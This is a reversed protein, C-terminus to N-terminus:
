ICDIAQKMQMLPQKSRYIRDTMTKHAHGLISFRVHDPVEHLDRLRDSLGYRYDHATHKMGSKKFATSIANSASSNNVWHYTPKEEWIGIKLLNDSLPIDRISESNKVTKTGVDNVSICKIIKGQDEKEIYDNSTIQIAEGIRVGTYYLLNLLWWLTRSDAVHQSAIIKQHEMLSVGTKISVNEVNKYNMGLFPNKEIYDRQKMAFNFMASVKIIADQKSRPSKGSDDLFKKYTSVTKKTVSGVPIDGCWELFSNVTRENLVKTSKAWDAGMEELWENIVSSLLPALNTEQTVPYTLGQCATVASLFEDEIQKDRAKLLTERILLPNTNGMLQSLRIFAETLKLARYQAVNRDQTRLSVRLLKGALRRQWMFSRESSATRDLFRVNQQIFIPYLDPLSQM